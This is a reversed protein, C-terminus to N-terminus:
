KVVTYRKRNGPGFREPGSGDSQKGSAAASSESAGALANCVKLARLANDETFIETQWQHVFCQCDEDHGARCVRSPKPYKDDDDDTGTPCECSNHTTNYEKVCVGEYSQDWKLKFFRNVFDTCKAHLKSWTETGVDNEIWKFYQVVSSVLASKPQSSPHAPAAMDQVNDLVAQAYAAVTFISGANCPYEDDDAICLMTDAVSQGHDVLPQVDKSLTAFDADFIDEMITPLTNNLMTALIAGPIGLIINGAAASVANGDHAVNSFSAVQNKTETLIIGLYVLSLFIGAQIGLQIYEFLGRSAGRSSRGKPRHANAIAIMPQSQISMEGDETDEYYSENTNPM